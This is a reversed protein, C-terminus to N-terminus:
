DAEEHDNGDFIKAISATCEKLKEILMRERGANMRKKDVTIFVAAVSKNGHTLIPHGIGIINDSAVEYDFAVGDNRRTNAINEWLYQSNLKYIYLKPEIIKIISAIEDNPLSAMIALGGAGVGLPYSDGPMRTLTRVPFDGEIRKLCIIDFGARVGLFATCGTFGSLRKLAKDSSPPFGYDPIVGHQLQNLLPGLRYYKNKDRAVMNEFLLRQLLRFVASKDLGTL